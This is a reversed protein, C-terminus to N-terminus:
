KEGVICLMYGGGYVNKIMDKPLIKRLKFVLNRVLGNSYELDFDSHLDYFIDVPSLVRNKNLVLTNLLAAEQLTLYISENEYILNKYTSEFIFGHGLAISNLKEERSKYLTEVKHILEGLTKRTMPKVIYDVLNLKIARLLKDQDSYASVVIIPM